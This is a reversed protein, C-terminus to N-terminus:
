LSSSLCCLDLHPPENQAVEDLHISNAFIAKKTEPEKLALSFSGKNVTRWAVSSAKICSHM